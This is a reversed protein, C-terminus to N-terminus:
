ETLLEEKRGTNDLRYYIHNKILLAQPIGDVHDVDIRIVKNNYDTCISDVITHGILLRKAKMATMISDVSAQTLKSEDHYDIAMGRYWLIGNTRLLLSALPQEYNSSTHEIETRIISNMLSIDTTAKVVQPSLGAHVFLLDGIREIANKTRLWRGLETNTSYLDQITCNLTKALNKYKAIIYRDVGQMDLQEHNGLIYHVMGGSSEAEQELQYIYWLCQTVHDGRDVLDGILVLHGNGFSWHLKEDIVHNTQLLNIMIDWQGEIDSIVFLSDPMAWTDPNIKLKPQIKVSFSGYQKNHVPVSLTSISGVELLSDKEVFVGNSKQLVKIVEMYESRYFLYPGDEESYMTEGQETVATSLPIIRQNNSTLMAKNSLSYALCSYTFFVLLIMKKM